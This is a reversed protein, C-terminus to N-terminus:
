ETHIEHAGVESWKKTTQYQKFSWVFLKKNPIAGFSFFFLNFCNNSFWQFIMPPLFFFCSSIPTQSNDLPRM